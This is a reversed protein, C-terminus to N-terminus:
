LNKNNEDRYNDENIGCEKLADKIADPITFLKNRYICFFNQFKLNMLNQPKPQFLHYYILM